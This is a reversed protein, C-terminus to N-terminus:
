GIPENLLKKAKELLQRGDEDLVNEDVPNDGFFHDVVDQLMNRYKLVMGKPYTHLGVGFNLTPSYPINTM